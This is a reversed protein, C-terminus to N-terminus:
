SRLAYALSLRNFPPGPHYALEEAWTRVLALGAGGGRVPIPATRDAHRPDFGPGNDHLELRVADSNAVIELIAESDQQWGGHDYLNVLLEEIIVALRSRDRPQLGFRDLAALAERVAEHREVRGEFTLRAASHSGTM